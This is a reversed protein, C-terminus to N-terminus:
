LLRSRFVDQGTPSAVQSNLGNEHLLPFVRVIRDIVILAEDEIRGLVATVCICLAKVGTGTELSSANFNLDPRKRLVAASSARARFRLTATQINIPAIRDGSEIGDIRRICLSSAM